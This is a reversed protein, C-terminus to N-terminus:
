LVDDAATVGCEAGFVDYGGDREIFLFVYMQQFQEVSRCEGELIDRQLEQAIEEFVEEDALVLALAPAVPFM